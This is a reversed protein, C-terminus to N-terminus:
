RQISFQLVESDQASDFKLIYMGPTLDSVDINIQSTSASLQLQKVLVGSANFIGLQYRDNSLTNLDLEELNHIKINVVDSVPNPFLSLQQGLIEEKEVAESARDRALMEEPNPSNFGSLTCTVLSPPSIIARFTNDARFGPRLLIRQGAQFLVDSNATIVVDGSPRNPYVNSGAEISTMAVFEKTGSITKNQLKLEDYYLISNVLPSIIEPPIVDHFGNANPLIIQDFRSNGNADLDLASTHPVFTPSQTQTTVVTTWFFGFKPLFFAVFPDTNIPPLLSGAVVDASTLSFNTTSGVNPNISLWTGSGSNPSTTSFPVAINYTLHPFGDGNLTNLEDLFATRSAGSTEYANFTLMIKAAPNDSAYQDFANSQKDKLFNQLETSIQAGQFPADFAIWRDVPLPNGVDEAKALAYRSIIGGMSIGSAVIDKSNFLDDSIFNIASSYVAANNRLDQPNFWYYLIYVDYGNELLCEVLDSGKHRYSQEPRINYADFGSSLILPTANAQSSKWVRMSNKYQDRYLESSKPVVQIDYERYRFTSSGAVLYKVKLNQTGVSNFTSSCNWVHNQISSGSYLTTYGQNNVNIELRVLFHSASSTSIFHGFSIKANGKETYIDVIETPSLNIHIGQGIDTEQNWNYHNIDAPTSAVEVFRRTQHKWDVTGYSPSILFSILTFLILKKM